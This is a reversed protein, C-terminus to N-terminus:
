GDPEHEAEDADAMLGIVILAAGITIGCDAVNFAPWRAPDLFDTVAGHALRDILNGISGGVLLGAGAAVTANRGVLGALAIAIACLALVTLVAVIAQRGPFLGFAIGENSVRSIEFGPFVEHREGPELTARIVIKAVQDAALVLVALVGFRWWRAKTQRRERRDIARVVADSVDRHARTM